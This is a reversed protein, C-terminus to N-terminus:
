PSTRGCLDGSLSLEEGRRVSRVPASSAPFSDPANTHVPVVLGPRVADVLWQLDAPLAHGHSSIAEFRVGLRRTWTQLVQWGPDAPGHPYGNMHVYLDGPGAAMDLLRARDWRRMECVFAEPNCAVDSATVGAAGPRAQASGAEDAWFTVGDSTDLEDFGEAKAAQWIAYTRASLVLTRGHIAAVAQIERQRELNREHFSCYVGRRSGAILKEFAEAVDHEPVNPLTAPAVGASTATSAETVLVDVGACRVAFREILEPHRGHRRWDGTYAVSGEPTNVLLGASGPVDHDVEIVEASLDGVSYSCESAIGTVRARAPPLAGAAVLARHLRAGPESMVVPVDAAVFPLLLMHDEHLHSVFVAMTAPDADTILPFGDLLYGPARLRQTVTAVSAGLESADYLNEVLPAMGARLYDLLVGRERPPLLPNFLTTRRVIGPNGVVGLDFLLRGSAGSIMIQVGGVTDTGGLFRLTSTM